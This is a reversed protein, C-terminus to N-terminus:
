KAGREMRTYDETFKLIGKDIRTLQKTTLTSDLEPLCGFLAKFKESDYVGPVLAEFLNLFAEEQNQQAAGVWLARIEVFKEYDLPAAFPEEPPAVEKLNRIQKEFDVEEADAKGSLDGSLKLIALAVRLKDADELTGYNKETWLLMRDYVGYNDTIVVGRPSLLWSLMLGRELVIDTGTIRDDIIGIHELGEGNFVQIAFSSDDQLTNISYASSMAVVTEVAFREITSDVRTFVSKSWALDGFRAHLMNALQGTWNSSKYTDLLVKYTEGPTQNRPLKVEKPALQLPAGSLRGSYLPPIEWETPSPSYSSLIERSAFPIPRIARLVAARLSRRSVPDVPLRSFYGGTKTLDYVETM